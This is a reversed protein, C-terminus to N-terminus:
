GLPIQLIGLSKGIEWKSFWRVFVKCDAMMYSDQWVLLGDLKGVDQLVTDM